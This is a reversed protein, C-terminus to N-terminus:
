LAERLLEVSVGVIEAAEELGMGKAILRLGVEVKGEIKGEIKGKEIGVQEGEIWSTKVSSEAVRRDEIYSEYEAREDKSLKMVDLEKSAKILGKASFGSKIESNKLFYIWEDLSNKAIDNFGNVKLIYYEPFIDAVSKIASFEKKQTASLQLIDNNHIGHFDSIGKYVYDNGHGLDFYVINISIVKRVKDYSFGTDMNDTILKAAGYVMRHFYDYQAEVQLEILVLEGDNIETLLDVRNHKDDASQKNSESELIQEIKVDVNLLESLFGELIEFNAKNRLLKKLAWDFRVLREKM